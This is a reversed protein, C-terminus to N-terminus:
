RLPGPAPLRFRGALTLGRVEPGGDFVWQYRWGVRFALTGALAIEEEIRVAATPATRGLHGTLFGAEAGLVLRPWRWNPVRVEGGATYLRTEFVCDPRTEECPEEGNWLEVAVTPTFASRSHLGLRLGFQIEDEASGVGKGLGFFPVVEIRRDSEEQAAAGTALTALVALLATAFKWRVSSM